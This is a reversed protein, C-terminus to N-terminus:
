QRKRCVSLERDLTRFLTPNESRFNNAQGRFGLGVGVLLTHLSLGIYLAVALWHAGRRWVNAGSPAATSALLWFGALMALLLWGTAFDFQYRMNAMYMRLAPLMTVCSACACFFLWQELHVFRDRSVSLPARGPVVCRALRVWWLAVLWTFVSAVLLGAAREGNGYDGLDYESPWEIWPSLHQFMPIDVYPFHCSWRLNATLYAVLNPLVFDNDGMFQRGTLQYKLGFEWVSDFRQYNYIAHAVVSLLSPVGLALAAYVAQRLGCRPQRWACVATICILLPAVLILSGRSALALGWCTSAIAFLGLQWRRRVLGWFAVVLGWTLFCQGAAISAEYVVPRALFYLAPSAVAFVAIALLVAWSPVPRGLRPAVSLILAAGGLLRGLMFILVLWQDYIVAPDGSLLKYVMLGLAPVPGWYIYYNGKYLSADWLWLPEYKYDYPDDKALLKKSPRVPVYLHGQLFGEAARDYHQTRWRLTEFKGATAVVAYLASIAIILVGVGVSRASGLRPVLSLGHAQSARQARTPVFGSTSADPM